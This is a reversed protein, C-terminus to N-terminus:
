PAWNECDWDWICDCLRGPVICRCRWIEAYFPFWFIVKSVEQVKLVSINGLKWFLLYNTGLWVALCWWISKLPQLLMVTSILQPQSWNWWHFIFVKPFPLCGIEKENHTWKKIQLLHTKDKSLRASHLLIQVPTFSPLIDGIVKPKLIEFPIVAPNSHGKIKDLSWSVTWKTSSNKYKWPLCEGNIQLWTVVVADNENQLSM